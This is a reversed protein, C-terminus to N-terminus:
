EGLLVDDFRIEGSKPTVLGVLAYMLQTKGAATPGMIATRTKPKISFSVDNLIIKNSSSLSNAGSNGAGGDTDTSATGGAGGVITLNKVDIAGVIDKVVTGTDKKTEAYLVSQIRKFSAQSRGIVSSM